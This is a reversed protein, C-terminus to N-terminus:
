SSLLTYHYLNELGRLCMNKKLSNFNIINKPKVYTVCLMRHVHDISENM